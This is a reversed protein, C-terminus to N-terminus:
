TSECKEINLELGIKSFLESARMIVKEYSIDKRHGIIIDDAYSVISFEEALQDIVPQIAACFLLM